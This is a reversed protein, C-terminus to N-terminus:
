MEVGGRGGLPVQENKSCFPCQKVTTNPEGCKYCFISMEASCDRFQHGYKRCNFCLIKSQDSSANNFQRKAVRDIPINPKTDTQTSIARPPSRRNPPPKHGMMAEVMPDDETEIDFPNFKM